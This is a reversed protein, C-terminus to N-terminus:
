TCRTEADKGTNLHRLDGWEASQMAHIIGGAPNSWKAARDLSFADASFGNLIRQNADYNPYRALIRRQSNVFLQDTDFGEPVDAKYIGDRYPRWNLNLRAGGSIVVKEARYARITLPSASHSADIELPSELHYTGARLLVTVPSKAAVSKGHDLAAQISRFPRSLTGPGAATGNPAVYIEMPGSVPAFAALMLGFPLM